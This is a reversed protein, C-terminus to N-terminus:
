EEGRWHAGNDFEGYPFEPRESHQYEDFLRDYASSDYRGDENPDNGVTLQREPKTNGNTLIERIQSITYGLDKLTLAMDMTVNRPKRTHFLNVERKM